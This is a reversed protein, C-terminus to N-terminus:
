FIGNDNAPPYLSDNIPQIVDWHEAVLGDEVRFIDVIARGPKGVERVSHVHLVVLDDESITRIITNKSEPFRQRLFEVFARLGERGDRVAPNHQLYGTTVLAAARDAEKDNLAAQYFDLVVERPTRDTTSASM